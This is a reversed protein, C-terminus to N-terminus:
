LPRSGVIAALKDDPLVPRMFAVHPRRMVPFTLSKAAPHLWKMDARSLQLHQVVEALDKKFDTSHEDILIDTGPNPQHRHRVLAFIRGSPTRILAAELDDLDDKTEEFRIGYRKRLADPELRITAVPQALGGAVEDLPVQEIEREIAVAPM